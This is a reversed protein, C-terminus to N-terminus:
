YEDVYSAVSLHIALYTRSPFDFLSLIYETAVERAGSELDAAGHLGPAQTPGDDM